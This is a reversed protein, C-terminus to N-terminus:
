PDRVRLRGRVRVGVWCHPAPQQERGGLARGRLQLLLRVVLVHLAGHRLALVAEVVSM